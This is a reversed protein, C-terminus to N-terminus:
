PAYLARPNLILIDQDLVAVDCAVLDVYLYGEHQLLLVRMPRTPSPSEPEPGKTQNSFLTAGGGGGSAAASGSGPM